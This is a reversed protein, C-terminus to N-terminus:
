NSPLASGKFDSSDIKENSFKIGLLVPLSPVVSMEMCALLRFAQRVVGRRMSNNSFTHCYLLPHASLPATPDMAASSGSGHLVARHQVAPCCGYPSINQSPLPLIFFMLKSIASFFLVVSHRLLPSHPPGAGSYVTCPFFISYLFMWLFVLIILMKM